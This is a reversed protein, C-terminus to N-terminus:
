MVFESHIQHINYAHLEDNMFLVRTFVRADSEIDFIIQVKHCIEHCNFALHSCTSVPLSTFFVNLQEM